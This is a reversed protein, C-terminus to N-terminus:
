RPPYFALGRNHVLATLQAITQPPTARQAVPDPPNKVQPVSNAGYNLVTALVSNGDPREECVTWRIVGHPESSRFVTLISGDSQVRCTTGRETTSPCALRPASGDASCATGAATSQCPRSGALPTSGYVDIFLNGTGAPDAIDMVSKYGGQSAYFSGPHVGRDWSVRVRHAGPPLTLAADLARNLRAIAAVASDPEPPTVPEPPRSTTPASPSPPTTAAPRSPQGASVGGTHDGAPRGHLVAVSATAVGGVLSATALGGATHLIKRRQRARRGRALVDAVTLRLPPEDGVGARLAAQVGPPLDLENSM